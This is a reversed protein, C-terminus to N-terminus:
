LDRRKKHLLKSQSFHAKAGIQHFKNLDLKNNPNHNNYHPRYPKKSDKGM